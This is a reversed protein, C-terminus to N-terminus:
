IGSGVYEKFLEQHHIPPPCTPRQHTPSNQTPPLTTTSILILTWNLGLSFFNESSIQKVELDKLDWEKKKQSFSQKGSM